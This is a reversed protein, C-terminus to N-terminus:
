NQRDPHIHLEGAGGHVGRHGPRARLCHRPLRHGRHREEGHLHVVGGQGPCEARQAQTSQSAQRDVQNFFFSCLATSLTLKVNDLESFSM